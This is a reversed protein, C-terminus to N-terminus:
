LPLNRSPSFRLRTGETECDLSEARAPTAFGLRVAPTGPARRARAKRYAELDGIRVRECAVPGHEEHNSCQQCCHTAHYTVVYGCGNPCACPTPEGETEDVSGSSRADGGGERGESSFLALPQHYSLPEDPPSEGDLPQIQMVTYRNDLSPALAASIGGEGVALSVHTIDFRQACGDSVIAVLHESSVPGHSEGDLRELRFRTAWGEQSSIASAKSIDLRFAGSESTVRVYDGAYILGSQSGAAGARGEGGLGAVGEAKPCGPPPAQLLAEVEACLFSGNGFHACSIFPVGSRGADSARHEFPSGFTSPNGGVFSIRRGSSLELAVEGCLFGITSARGSLAIVREDAQLTEWRGGRRSIAEDDALEIPEESNELLSGLREGGALEFILGHVVDGTAGCVRVVLNATTSGEASDSTAAASASSTVSGLEGRARRWGVSGTQRGRLEEASLRRSAEDSRADLLKCERASRAAVVRQQGPALRGQLTANLLAIRSALWEEDVKDRRAATESWSSSYRRAVDAVEEHSFAFVYSLKKGWGREYMMPGDVACECPDAHLWRRQAHSWVEVWVHDTFDLVWRVEFGCARAVLAFCNAWEGCRGRRTRLLVAPDNYRPFRTVHGTPGRYLEVNGAGGAREDATPTGLGIPETPRGTLECAPRDVWSFFERKFWQLLERLEELDPLPAEATAPRDSSVAAAPRRTAASARLQAWPVAELARRRHDPDEYAHATEIGSLLRGHMMQEERLRRVAAQMGILPTPSSGPQLATASIEPKPKEFDLNAWTENVLNLSSVPRHDMEGHPLFGVCLGMLRQDDPEVGTLSFVQYRLLEITENPDADLKHPSGKYVITILVM